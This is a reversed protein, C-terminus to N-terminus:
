AFPVDVRVAQRGAAQVAAIAGVAQEDDCRVALHFGGLGKIAVVRGESLLGMVVPVPDGSLVGGVPNVLELKPGCDHCAIPQAHYRRDGPNNYESRCADCLEFGRM